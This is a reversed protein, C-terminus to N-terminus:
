IGEYVREVRKSLACMMEYPITGILSALETVKPSDGFLVAKDGIKIDEIGTIDVMCMDMCINGIVPCLHGNINVKAKNSLLRMYGDAYGACLTAVKTPRAARFTRAYSVSQDEDLDFINVVYTGFSMVTKYEYNKAPESEAPNVGYLIIGPRIATTIDDQMCMIGASNDIHIYEPDVGHAKVNKIVNTFLSHQYNSYTLDKEDSTAYHSFISEVKLNSMENIKIIAESANKRADFGLRNMGTNVKCGVKLTMSRKIAEENLTKAFELTYINPIIDYTFIDSVRTLPIYGLIFVPEKIEAKRLEIAEDINAVAFANAGRASLTKACMVSGCGYSNAKVICIIKKNNSISKILDFNYRLNNLDIKVFTNTDM